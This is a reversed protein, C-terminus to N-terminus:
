ACYPYLCALKRCGGGLDGDMKLEQQVTQHLRQALRQKEEENHGPVIHVTVHPM